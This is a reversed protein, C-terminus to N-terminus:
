YPFQVGLSAVEDKVKRFLDLYWPMPRATRADYCEQFPRGAPADAIQPEYKALLKLAIESAQARTMGQRAVAHGVECAMRAEVPTAYNCYKNHAAAAEWLHGGSVVSVLGHAAAEYLVMETGPGANLFGNSTSLIRSNRSVAQHVVSVVWLMERGSNSTYHLHFPFSQQFDAQYVVRGVLHYATELIATGEAGGAYGGYIAGSLCGIRCGFQACHVVKNQLENDIKLETLAGILRADSQRVGWADQSVALQGTDSQATGVAVLFLGPRGVLRAAQRLSMAHEVVGALETPTGSRIKLGVSEELIPACIGDALPEQAYAISMRLFLDEDCTIDPSFICFPPRRDEVTRPEWIRLDRGEGVVCRDPTNYLAEMIEARSLTIRRSTDINLVGVGVVLEIAAQWVRDAMQDDDPVPRGADYKIGFEKIVQKMKPLFLRYLFEEESDCLPGVQAREMIDFLKFAPM